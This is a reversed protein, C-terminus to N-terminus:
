PAAGTTPWNSKISGHKARQWTNWNQLLVVVGVGAALLYWGCGWWNGAVADLVSRIVFAALIAASFTLLGLSWSPSRTM